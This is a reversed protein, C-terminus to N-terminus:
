KGYRLYLKNKCRSCAVYLRRNIEEADTYPNGNKDYVIDNVDVLTTDFTSGQSKHSTMAFGYDIDRSFEIKRTTPNIINTLLLCTEKFTYYDKWRQPRVKPSAFKAAQILERSLKVYMAISFKDNHDVIFLPSTNTGGHIATFRVMFGKINYRPHVYNVVDKLIYEESNQIIIDNFQNVLTVYSIVLDNKTIISKDADKIITKRIFKNWGSVANNTYGIIKCFDINRTLEEDSFNNYVIQEFESNSCVQYGKTNDENFKSRNVSIYNLFTFSKNAIDYRLLDLLNSIPNDDGQRVIQNLTSLKVAKFAPSYKEGVPALQSSDGILLLKCNHSKCTRELFMLLERNIMSAEDVIYLSYNEIKIKGKPDFPPNNIDFKEVDFNLRLGLDSQLTSVKINPLKISESLVRCAKHTPAAIGITSYSLNCNKILAKVLYTKGTGAAGTLARKFDNKNYSANIFSIIDDYAKRQDKTFGLTTIADKGNALSVNTINM